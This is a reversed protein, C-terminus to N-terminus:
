AKNEQVFGLIQSAVDDNIVDGYKHVWPYKKLFKNSWKDKM